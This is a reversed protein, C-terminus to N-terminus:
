TCIVRHKWFPPLVECLLRRRMEWIVSEPVQHINRRISTALDCDFTIIEVSKAYIEALRYYPAIEYAQINTNAVILVRNPHGEHLCADFLQLCWAHAKSANKVDYCYVGDKMHYDDACFTIRNDLSNAYASKGSGPLGRLIKVDM